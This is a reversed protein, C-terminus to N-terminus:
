RPSGAASRSSRAAPRRCRAARMDARLRTASARSRRQHRAALARTGASGGAASRARRPTRERPGAALLAGAQEALRAPALSGAGIPSARRARRAGGRAGALRAAAARRAARADGRARRARRSSRRPSCCRWGAVGLGAAAGLGPALLRSALERATRASVRLTGAARARARGARQTSFPKTMYADAGLATGKALDTDRGKATLMLIKVGALAEDARVAQCVDFGSKGPMM